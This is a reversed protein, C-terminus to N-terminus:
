QKVEASYLEVFVQQTNGFTVVSVNDAPAEICQNLSIGVVYKASEEDIDLGRYDGVVFRDLVESAVLESSLSFINQTGDEGVDVVIEYIVEPTNIRRDNTLKM